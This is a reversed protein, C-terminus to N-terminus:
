EWRRKEEKEQFDGYYSVVKTKYLSKNFDKDSM